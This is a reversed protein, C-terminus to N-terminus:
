LTSANLTTITRMLIPCGRWQQLDGVEYNISTEGDFIAELLSSADGQYNPLPIDDASGIGPTVGPLYFDTVRVCRTLKVGATYPQGFKKGVITATGEATFIAGATASFGITDVDSITFLGAAVTYYSEGVKVIIDDTITIGHAPATLTRQFVTGVNFAVNQVDKLPNSSTVAVSSGAPFLGTGDGTLLSYANYSVRFWISNQAANINPNSGSGLVTVGGRATVESLANIASQVTGIAANYAIAATTQGFFTLTFTGGITNAVPVSISVLMQMGVVGNDVITTSVTGGTVNTTDASPLAHPVFTVAFGASADGTVTVGDGASISAIANLETEVTAANANYAIAATTNAGYTLTFHGGVLVGSAPGSDATVAQITYQIYTGISPDPQTILSSGFVQPFTGPITPKTAYISGPVVQQAPVRAFTRTVSLVDGVGTPLPDTEAILYADAFKPDKLVGMQGREYRAETQRYDRHVIFSYRDSNGSFPYEFRPRGVYVGRAYAGDLLLTPM